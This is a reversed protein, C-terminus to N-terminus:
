EGVKSPFIASESRADVACVSEVSGAFVAPLPMRSGGFASRAESGMGANSPRDTSSLMSVACFSEVSGAVAGLSLM